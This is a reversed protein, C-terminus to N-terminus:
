CYKQKYGIDLYELRKNIGGVRYIGLMDEIINLLHDWDGGGGSYERGVVKTAVIINMENVVSSIYILAVVPGVVSEM